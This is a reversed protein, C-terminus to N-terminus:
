INGKLIELIQRHIQAATTDSYGDCTEHIIEAIRPMGLDGGMLSQTRLVVELHNGLIRKRASTWKQPRGGPRGKRFHADVLTDLLLRWHRPDEPELNFAEFARKLPENDALVNHSFTLASNATSSRKGVDNWQKAESMAKLGLKSIRRAAAAVKESAKKAM